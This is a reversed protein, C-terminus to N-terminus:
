ETQCGRARIKNIAADKADHLERIADDFNQQEDLLKQGYAILRRDEAHKYRAAFSREVVRHRHGEGLQFGLLAADRRFQGGGM